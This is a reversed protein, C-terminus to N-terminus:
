LGPPRAFSGDAGPLYETVAVVAELPLAAYLHPFLKGDPHPPDGEEWTVPVPLRAEDIQLLLLDTRGRFLATAPVAVQEATSCHIFGQTALTDGEYVGKARADEWSARPCIHLIM